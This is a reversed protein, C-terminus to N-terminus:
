NRRSRFRMHTVCLRRFLLPYAGALTQVAVKVTWSNDDNLLGALVDLSQLAVVVSLNEFCRPILMYQVLLVLFFREARM